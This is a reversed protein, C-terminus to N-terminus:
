LHAHHDTQIGTWVYLGRSIRRWNPGRLQDRTLGASVAAAVTIPGERLSEPVCQRRPVCLLNGAPAATALVRLLQYASLACHASGRRGSRRIVRKVCFAM